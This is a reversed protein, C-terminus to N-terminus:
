PSVERCAPEAHLLLFGQLPYGQAWRADSHTYVHTLLALVDRDASPHM